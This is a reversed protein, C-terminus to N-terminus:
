ESTRTGSLCIKKLARTNFDEVVASVARVTAPLVLEAVDGDVERGSPGRIARGDDCVTQSLDHDIYKTGLFRLQSALRHVVSRQDCDFDANQRETGSVSSFPTSPVLSDVSRRGVHPVVSIPVYESAHQFKRRCDLLREFGDDLGVEVRAGFDGNDNVDELGVAAEQRGADVGGGQSEEGGTDRHRVVDGGDRTAHVRRSRKQVESGELFVVDRM